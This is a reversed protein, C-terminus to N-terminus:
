VTALIYPPRDSDFQRVHPSSRVAMRANVWCTKLKSSTNFLSETNGFWQAALASHVTGRQHAIKPKLVAESRTSNPEWRVPNNSWPPTLHASVRHGCQAHNDHLSGWCRLVCQLFPVPKGNLSTHFLSVDYVTFKKLATVPHCHPLPFAFQQRSMTVVICALSDGVDPVCIIQHQVGSRPPSQHIHKFKRNCIKSAHPRWSWAGHVFVIAGQWRKTKFCTRRLSGELKAVRHHSGLGSCSNVKAYRLDLSWSGPVIFILDDVFVWPVTLLGTNNRTVM